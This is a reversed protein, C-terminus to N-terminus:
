QKTSITVTIPGGAYTGVRNDVNVSNISEPKLQYLKNVCDIWRGEFYEGDIVYIFNNDDVRAYMLKAYDSSFYSLVSQYASKAFKVTTFHLNKTKGSQGYFANGLSDRLIVSSFGDVKNQSWANLSMSLCFLLILTCFGRASHKSHRLMVGMKQANDGQAQRLTHTYLGVGGHKSLSLM